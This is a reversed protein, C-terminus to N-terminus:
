MFAWANEIELVHTSDKNKQVLQSENTLHVM